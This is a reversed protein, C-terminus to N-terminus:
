IWSICFRWVGESEVSSTLIKLCSALPKKLFDRYAKIRKINFDMCKEAITTEISIRDEASSAVQRLIHLLVQLYKIVKESPGINSSVWFIVESPQVEMAIATVSDGGKVFDCVYALQDLFVRRFERLQLNLVAPDESPCRSIRQEGNRDLTHLLLLPEYFRHLRRDEPCLRPVNSSKGKKAMAPLKTRERKHFREKLSQGHSQAKRSRKKGMVM